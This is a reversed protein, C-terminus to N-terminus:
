QKGAGRQPLLPLKDGRLPAPPQEVVPETVPEAVPEAVLVKIERLAAGELGPAAEVTVIKGAHKRERPDILEGNVFVPAVVEYTLTQPM